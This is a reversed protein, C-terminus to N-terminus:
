SNNGSFNSLLHTIKYFSSPCKRYKELNVESLEPISDYDINGKRIIKTLKVGYGISNRSNSISILTDRLNKEKKELDKLQKNVSIWEEAATGWLYEERKEYDRDNMEPPSFEQLCEWFRKEKEIMKKIYNDNRFVKVLVGQTGDFSFYYGMDLGCVELQHQLQPIYKEPVQGSLAIAHDARNPCKIEAIYKGEPDVADLSAIMWSFSSHFKVEPLFFLGTIKELEQRAQDELDLGRKMSSNQTTKTSFVKEEWLQYPTKYPSVEMIVPADSAGIKNKRMELWEPSNQQYSPNLM